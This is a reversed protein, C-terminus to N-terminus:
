YGNVIYAIFWIPVGRCCCQPPEALVTRVQMSLHQGACAARVRRHDLGAEARLSDGYGWIAPSMIAGVIMLIIGLLVLIRSRV